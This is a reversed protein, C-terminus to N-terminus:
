KKFKKNFSVDSMIVVSYEDVNSIWGFSKLQRLLITKIMLNTKIMWHHSKSIYESAFINYETRKCYVKSGQIIFTRILGYGLNDNTM